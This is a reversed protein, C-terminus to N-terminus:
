AKGVKKPNKAAYIRRLEVMKAQVTASSADDDLDAPVPLECLKYAEMLQQWEADTCRQAPGEAVGARRMEEATAIDDESGFGAFGLARGVASTEAVEYPSKKEISKEGVREQNVASIGTFTGAPTTVTARLVIVPEHALVETTISYTDHKARLLELRRAVTTYERGQILVVGKPLQGAM